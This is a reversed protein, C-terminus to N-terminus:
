DQTTKPLEAVHLFFFFFRAVTKYLKAGQHHALTSRFTYYSTHQLILSIKICTHANAKRIIIISNCTVSHLIHFVSTVRRKPENM